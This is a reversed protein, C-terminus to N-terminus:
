TCWQTGHTEISDIGPTTFTTKQLFYFGYFMFVLFCKKKIRQKKWGQDISSGLVLYLVRYELTTV